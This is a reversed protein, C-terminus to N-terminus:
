TKNARNSLANDVWPSPITFMEFHQIKGPYLDFKFKVAHFSARLRGRRGFIIRADHGYTINRYYTLRLALVMDWPALKM